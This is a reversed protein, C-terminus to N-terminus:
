HKIKFAYSGLEGKKVGKLTLLKDFDDRTPSEVMTSYAEEINELPYGLVKLRSVVKDIEKKLTNNYNDIMRQEYKGGTDILTSLYKNIDIVDVLFQQAAIENARKNRYVHEIFSSPVAIILRNIFVLYFNPSLTSKMIKSSSIFSQSVGKAYDSTDGTKDFAGWNIKYMDTFHDEMKNNIWNIELEFCESIVEEFYGLAKYLDVESKKNEEVKEVITNQLDKITDL